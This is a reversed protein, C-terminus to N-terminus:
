NAPKSVSIRLGLGDLGPVSDQRMFQRLVMAYSGPDPYRTSVQLPLSLTCQEGRCDGLWRGSGDALELSLPETQRSGDPYVTTFQAYLNQTAFVDEHDVELVLDYARSTDAIDYGFAVSDAYSWEGPLDHHQEYIVEPGCATLTLLAFGLTLAVLHSSWTRPEKRDDDRSPAAQRPFRARLFTTAEAPSIAVGVGLTAARLSVVARWSSKAENIAADKRDDNRCSTAQRPSRM